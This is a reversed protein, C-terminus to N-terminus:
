TEVDGFSLLFNFEKKNVATHCLVCIYDYIYINCIYIYIYTFPTPSVGGTRTMLRFLLRKVWQDGHQFMYAWIVSDCTRCTKQGGTERSCDLIGKKRPTKRLRAHPHEDSRGRRSRVCADSVHVGVRRNCFHIAHAMMSGKFERLNELSFRSIWATKTQPYHISGHKM